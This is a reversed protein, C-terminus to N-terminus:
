VPSMSLTNQIKTCSKIWIIKTLTESNSMLKVQSPLRGLWM